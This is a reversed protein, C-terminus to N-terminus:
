AALVSAVGPDKAFHLRHCPISQAARAGAALVHGATDPEAVYVLVHRMLERMGETRSM